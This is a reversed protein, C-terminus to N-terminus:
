GSQENSIASMLIEETTQFSRCGSLNILYRVDSVDPPLIAPTICPFSGEVRFVSEQRVIYGTEGYLSRHHGFYGAELMRIRFLSLAKRDEDFLATVDDAIQNLTKGNGNFKELSIHYLFLHNLQSNDLQMESNIRVIQPDIDSSTKIEVAWRNMQFDRAAGAPGVWSLIGDYLSTYSRLYGSLFWLEGFLGQQQEESLGQGRAKEFLEEWKEFRSLLNRILINEDRVESVAGILDECLVSFIDKHLTETLLILINYRDSGPSLPVCEFRIGRLNKWSGIDAMRNVTVALCRVKEPLRLAVYIDPIVQASYRRFLLSSGSSSEKELADWIEGTKNMMMWRRKMM